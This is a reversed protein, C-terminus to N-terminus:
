LGANYDSVLIESLDDLHSTRHAADLLTAVCALEHYAQEAGGGSAV